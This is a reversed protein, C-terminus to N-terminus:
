AFLEMREDLVDIPPQEKIEELIAPSVWIEDLKLTNKIRIIRPHNLDALGCSRLAYDLGTRENDVIIPVFGRELFSSTVVNEYTANFDIKDFVRRTIIDALGMGIANGHSNETLDLLMISTIDPSDPEPETKIKTRGIINPDLGVGSIDKGFEDIILVDLQKVPLSPMNDRVWQLLEIEEREIEDPKWVKIIATEDYANEAVAVGALINGHKLIQRATPPIYDQLGKTGYNHIELAQAHKGLGIVLMKIVGSELPGHYDTHLKVRNIVITGDADYAYKDMYVKNPLDGQPLEVVELSSKIPVGTYAETIGYSEIVERQGEPTAGGHSGMAPVIFPEGGQEKVYGVTAKVIRHINAIGRSGTAIAISDGKKITVGSEVLQRRTVAEIDEQAIRPRPFRQKVKVLKM